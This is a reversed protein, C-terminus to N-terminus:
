QEASQMLGRAAVRDPLGKGLYSQPAEFVHGTVGQGGTLLTADAQCPQIEGGGKHIRSSGKVASSLCPTACNSRCRAAWQSCPPSTTSVVWWLRVSFGM